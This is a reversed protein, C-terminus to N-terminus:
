PFAAAGAPSTTWTPGSPPPAISLSPPLVQTKPPPLATSPGSRTSTPVSPTIQLPPSTLVGCYFLLLRRGSLAIACKLVHARIPKFADHMVHKLCLLTLSTDYTGRVTSKQVHIISRRIRKNGKGRRWASGYLHVAACRQELKDFHDPFSCTRRGPQYTIPEPQFTINQPFPTLSWIGVSACAM